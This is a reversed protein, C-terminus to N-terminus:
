AAAEHWDNGLEGGGRIHAVAYVGGLRVWAAALSSYVPLQTVGYSGYGYLLTRSTGDAKLDPRHILTVPIKTGDKGTAFVTRVTMDALDHRAKSALYPSTQGTRLNLTEVQGPQQRTAMSLHVQTEDRESLSLTVATREALAVDHQKVGELDYIALKHGLDKFQRVLLQNGAITGGDIVGDGEPVITKWADPDPNGLTLRVIRGKPADLDTLAYLQAGVNRIMTFSSRGMRVVRIALGANDIPAIWLGQRRDTGVRAQIFLQGTSYSARLSMSVNKRQAFQFMMRDAAQPYGLQHHFICHGQRDWAPNESPLAPRVYYFSNGDPLWAVSTFRCGTLVDNLDLGSRVDRVRLTSADGGAETVLYAIKNALRDPFYSALAASGSPSLTTPDLLTRPAAQPDDTVELRAQEAAGDFAMSFLRPGVRRPVFPRQFKGAAALFSAVRGHLPNGNLVTKAEADMAAIWAQVDTRAPDEFPRFPDPVIVGHLLDVTGDRPAAPFSLALQSQAPSISGGVLSGAGLAAAGLLLQRRDISVLSHLRM